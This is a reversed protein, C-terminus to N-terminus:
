KERTSSPPPTSTEMRGRSCSRSELQLCSPRAGQHRLGASRRVLYPEVSSYILESKQDCLLKKGFGTGVQDLFGQADRRDLEWGEAMMLLSVAM